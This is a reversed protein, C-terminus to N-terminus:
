RSRGPQVAPGAQRHAAVGPGAPAAAPAPARPPGATTSQARAASALVMPRGASPAEGPAHWLVNATAQILTSGVDRGSSLSKWWTDAALGALHKEIPKGAGEMQAMRAAVLPWHKSQILETVEAPFGPLAATVMQEFRANEEASIALQRWARARNELDLDAPIDLGHTLPGYALMVDVSSGLARGAPTVGFAKAVELAADQAQALVKRVDVGKAELRGMCAKMDPWAESSLIAERGPGAPLTERVAKVWDTEARVPAPAPAAPVVSEKVMAVVEGVKPLYAGLDVGAHKLAMLQQAILPWDAGGLLAASVDLPLLDKLEAKAEERAQEVPPLEEAKGAQLWQQYRRVADAITMALRMAMIATQVAEGAAAAYPEEQPSTTDM